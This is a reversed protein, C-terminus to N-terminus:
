EAIFEKIIAERELEWKKEIERKIEEPIVIKASEEPSPMMSDDIWDVWIDEPKVKQGM